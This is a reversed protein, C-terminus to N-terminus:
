QNEADYGSPLDYQRRTVKIQISEETKKMTNNYPQYLSIEL